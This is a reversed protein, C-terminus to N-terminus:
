PHVPLYSRHRGPAASERNSSYPDAVRFHFSDLFRAQPFHRSDSAPFWTAPCGGTHIAMYHASHTDSIEYYNIV